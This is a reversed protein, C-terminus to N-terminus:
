HLGAVAEQRVTLVHAQLCVTRLHPVPGDTSAFDWRDVVEAPTGCGSQPCTVFAPASM